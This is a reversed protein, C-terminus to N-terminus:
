VVQLVDKAALLQVLLVVDLEVPNLVLVAADEQVDLALQQVAKDVDEPAVLIVDELVYALVVTAVLEVTKVVDVAADLVVLIVDEQVLRIVDELVDQAAAVQVDM